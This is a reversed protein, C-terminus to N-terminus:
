LLYFIKICVIVKMDDATKEFCRFQVSVGWPCQGNSWSSPSFHVCRAPGHRQIFCCVFLVLGAENQVARASHARWESPGEQEGSPHHSRESLFAESRADVKGSYERFPLLIFIILTLIWNLAVSLDLWASLPTLFTYYNYVANSHSINSTNEFFNEKRVNSIIWMYSSFDILFM